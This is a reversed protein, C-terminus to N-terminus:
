KGFLETGAVHFTDKVIEKYKDLTRAVRIEYSYDQYYYSDQIFKDSSIFGRTTDWYGRGKGIGTKNIRAKIQSDTNFEQITAKLDAGSGNTSRVSVVPVSEYGSGGYTVSTSTISGNGDTIIYGNAVVGPNGGSFVL